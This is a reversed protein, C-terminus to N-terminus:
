NYAYQFLAKRLAGGSSIKDLIGKFLFKLGVNLIFFFFIYIYIYIYAYLEIHHISFYYVVTYVIM